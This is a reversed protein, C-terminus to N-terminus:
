PVDRIEEEVAAPMEPRTAGSIEFYITVLIAVVAVAVTAWTGWMSWGAVRRHHHEGQAARQADLRRLYEVVLPKSKPGYTRGGALKLRITDENELVLREWFDLQDATLGPPPTRIDVAPPM